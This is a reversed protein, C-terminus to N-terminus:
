PAFEVARFAGPAGEQAPRYEWAWGEAAGYSNPLCPIIRAWMARATGVKVAAAEEPLLGNEEAIAKRALQEAQEVDHTHKVLVGGEALYIAEPERKRGM